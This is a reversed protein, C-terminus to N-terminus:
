LKDQKKPTFKLYETTKEITAVGSNEERKKAEKLQEEMFLTDTSYRWSKRWALLFEGAAMKNNTIGADNMSTLIEANLVDKEDELTKIQNVLEIYRDEATKNSINVSM